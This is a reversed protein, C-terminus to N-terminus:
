KKEKERGTCRRRLLRRREKEEEEDRKRRKEMKRVGGKGVMEVNVYIKKREKVGCTWEMGEGRERADSMVAKDDDM